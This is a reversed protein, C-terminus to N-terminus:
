PGRSVNLRVTDGRTAEGGGGPNQAVVTGEPERSPVQVVNAELDQEALAAEADGVLLGVVDPVEVRGSGQSVEIRVTSGRDVEEDAAPDQAVVNGAPQEESFVEEADSELEVEELLEVAQEETRGVLDPVTATDPGESVHITVTAGEPVTRGAGPTQAFVIGPPADAAARETEVRLGLGELRERAAEEPLRVVAVMTVREPETDRTFYWAAALGAAVLALLLLLWPWLARDPPPPAGRRGPGERVRERSEERVRDRRPPPPPQSAPGRRRRQVATEEEPWVDNQPLFQTEEDDPDRPPRDPPQAM